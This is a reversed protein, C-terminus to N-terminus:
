GKKPRGPGRKPGPPVDEAVEEVTKGAIARTVERMVENKTITPQKKGPTPNVRDTIKDGVYAPRFGKVLRRAESACPPLFCIGGGGFGPLVPKHFGLFGHRNTLRVRKEAM